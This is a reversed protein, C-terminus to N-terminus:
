ERESVCLEKKAEHNNNNNNVTNHVHKIQIHAKKNNQKITKISNHPSGQRHTVNKNHHMMKHEIGVSWSIMQTHCQCSQEFSTRENLKM